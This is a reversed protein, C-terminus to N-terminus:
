AFTRMTEVFRKAAAYFSIQQEDSGAQGGFVLASQANSVNAGAATGFVRFLNNAGTSASAISGTQSGNRFALAQASNRRAGVLLSDSTRWGAFTANNSSSVRFVADNPTGNNFYIRSGNTYLDINPQTQATGPDVLWEGFQFDNISSKLWGNQADLIIGGEGKCGIFPTQTVAGNIAITGSPSVVNLLQAQTTHANLFLLYDLMGWSGDDVTDAIFREYAALVDTEPQVTWAEQLAFLAQSVPDPMAGTIIDPPIVTEAIETTIIDSGVIREDDGAAVTGAVAGVDLTSADGLDLAAIAISAQETGAEAGAIAGNVSAQEAAAEADDVAQKLDQALISAGVGINGGMITVDVSQGDLDVIVNQEGETTTANIDLVIFDGGVFWSEIGDQSLVIDYSLLRDGPGSALALVDDKKLTLVLADSVVSFVSGNDTASLSITMLVTSGDRIQMLPSFGAFTYNRGRPAYTKRLDANRHAEITVGCCSM